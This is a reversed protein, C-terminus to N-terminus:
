GASDWRTAQPAGLASREPGDEDVLEGQQVAGLVAAVEAGAELGAEFHGSCRHGIPPWPLSSMALVKQVKYVPVVNM